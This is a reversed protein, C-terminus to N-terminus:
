LFVWLLKFWFSEKSATAIRFVGSRVIAPGKLIPFTMRMIIPINNRMIRIKCGLITLKGKFKQNKEKISIM